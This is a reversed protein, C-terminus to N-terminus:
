SLPLGGGSFEMEQRPPLNSIWDSLHTPLLGLTNLLCSAAGLAQGACVCPPQVCVRAHLCTPVCAPPHAPTCMHKGKNLSRLASIPQWLASIVIGISFIQVTSGAMWLMFGLMFLNKVPATAAEWAKQQKMEGDADRVKVSKSSSEDVDAAQRNFGLPDPVDRTVVATAEGFDIAWKRSVSLKGTSM